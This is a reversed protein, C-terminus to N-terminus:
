DDAEVDDDGGTPDLGDDADVTPSPEIKLHGGRTITATTQPMPDAPGSLYEQLGRWDGAGGEQKSGFTAAFMAHRDLEIALKLRIAAPIEDLQEYHELITDRALEFGAVRGLERITRVVPAFRAADSPAPDIRPHRRRM